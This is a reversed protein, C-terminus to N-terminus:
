GNIVAKTGSYLGSAVLGAVIGGIIVPAAVGSILIALLVGIVIAVVAAFRDPLFGTLRVAQVLAMIIPALGLVAPSSIIEPIIDM